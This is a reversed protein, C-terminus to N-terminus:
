PAPSARAHASLADSIAAWTKPGALGDVDLGHEAQFVEVARRTMRGFSGDVILPPAAGLLNLAAQLNEAAHLGEPVPAPIIPPAATVSPLDGVALEPHRHVLELYLAVTGPQPDLENPNWVGDGVYKGGKGHGGYEPTDYVDTCSWLYGSLRFHMRPGFGNWREWEWAMYPLTWSAIGQLVDIKDYRLYFVDAESKSGFPGKGAPVHRSVQNWPDGQGIGRQPNCDDERCDTCAIWAAPIGTIKATAVYGDLVREIEDVDRSVVQPRTVKTMSLLHEYESQLVLFPYQM